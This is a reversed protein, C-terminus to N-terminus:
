DRFLMMVEPRTFFMKEFLEVDLLVIFAATATLAAAALKQLKIALAPPLELGAVVGVDVLM